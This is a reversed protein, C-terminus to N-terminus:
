GTGLNPALFGNFGFGSSNQYPAFAKAVSSAGSILSGESAIQGAQTANAASQTDLGAQAKQSTAEVRYGYASRAANSRITLADLMTNQDAGARVQANSGTNVDVGNAGMAAVMTGTKAKDQLEQNEASIEGTQMTSIANQRAIKANNEAVQAQYLDSASIAAAQQQQAASQQMMGAVGLGVSALSAVLGM